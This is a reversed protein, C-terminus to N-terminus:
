KLTIRTCYKDRWQRYTAAILSPQQETDRRDHFKAMFFGILKYIAVSGIAFALFTMVLGMGANAWARYIGVLPIDLIWTIVFTMFGMIPNVVVAIFFLTLILVWFVARILARIYTCLDSIDYTRIRGDNWLILRAHWSNRNIIM